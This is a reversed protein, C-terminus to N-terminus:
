RDFKKVIHVSNGKENYTISDLFKKSLAIGRGNSVLENLEDELSRKLIKQHEFGDGEDTIIVDLKEPTLSYEVTIRKKTYIPDKQRDMLIKIYTGNMLAESKEEFSLGFNGHEMANILLERICFKLNMFIEHDCYKYAYNAIRQSVIEIQNLFNSIKYVQTESHCMRLLIDEELTSASGFLTYGTDHQIYRLKIHMEKPDGFKTVLDCNFTLVNNTPSLEELKEELIEGKASNSKYTLNAISTNLIEEVSYKLIKTVIQNISLIRWEQDLSFIIDLSNEVLDRYKKESKELEQVLISNQNFQTYYSVAAELTDILKKNDGGKVVYGFPRFENIIEVPDKLEQYSSLFIIPLYIKKKKIENLAEFRNKIDLIVAFFPLNINEIVETENSCLIFEYKACLIKKLNDLVNKDEDVILILPKFSFEHLSNLDSNPTAIETM